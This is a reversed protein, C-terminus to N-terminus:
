RLYLAWVGYQGDFGVCEFGFSKALRQSANNAFHIKTSVTEAGTERVRRLVEELIEAGVNTGALRNARGIHGIWADGTQDPPEYEAFAAIGHEDRAVLAVM